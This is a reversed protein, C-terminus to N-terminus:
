SGVGTSQAYPREMLRERGVGNRAAEQEFGKGGFRIYLRRWLAFPIFPVPSKAMLRVAEAPVPLGESLAVATLDLARVIHTVPPGSRKESTLPQGGIVGGGGLALGGDWAIGSQAAFERCIALALSNQHTEPFGSNVIAMLRQRPPNAAARRHGAIVALAKTALYPLADAYLPFVLLILGARDVSALLAAEGEERNLSARLTLSETEWGSNGVRELLYRGLVSSTSTSDTKPSGVILLARRPGDAGAAIGSTVPPPMLSAVAEGFPLADSRTLLGELGQRITDAPDTAVVVEAAYSPPHLNIANRGALTKFVLAEHSDPHRQVGVVVLRPRHEYRPPHHVEGHDMAFFPSILPICREMMRKLHPSYGGFTVPTYFVTVDSQIVARAVQRGDDDEVCIGPTKIWCGFCGLCHSLKMEHLHFIEIQSGDRAFVDRLQNLAPALDTDAPGCGDLVVVKKGSM